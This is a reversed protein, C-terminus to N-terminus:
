VLNSLGLIKTNNRIEKKVEGIKRADSKNEYNELNKLDM